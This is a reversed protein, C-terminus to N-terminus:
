ENEIGTRLIIMVIQGKAVATKEPNKIRRFSSSYKEIIRVVM